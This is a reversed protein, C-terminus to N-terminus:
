EGGKGHESGRHPTYNWNAKILSIVFFTFAASTKWMQLGQSSGKDLEGPQVRLRWTVTVGAKGGGMGAWTDLM